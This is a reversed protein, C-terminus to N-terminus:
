SLSRSPFGPVPLNKTTPSNSLVRTASAWIPLVPLTQPSYELRPAWDSLRTRSEQSGTSQRGGPEETGPIGWALSRPGAATEQELPGEGGLSQARTEQMPLCIRQRRLWWPLGPLSCPFSTLWRCFCCCTPLASLFTRPPSPNPQHTVGPLHTPAWHSCGPTGHSPTQTRNELSVPSVRSTSMLATSEPLANQPYCVAQGCPAHLFPRATSLCGPPEQMLRCTIGPSMETAKVRPPRLPTPFPSLSLRGQQPAWPSPRGEITFAASSTWVSWLNQIGPAEEGPTTLSSLKVMRDKPSLPVRGSM